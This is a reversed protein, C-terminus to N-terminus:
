IQVIIFEVRTVNKVGLSSKAHKIFLNLNRDM